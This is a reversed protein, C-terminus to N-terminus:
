KSILAKHRGCSLCIGDLSWKHNNPNKCGDLVEEAHFMDKTASDFIKKFIENVEKLDKENKMFDGICLSLAIDM